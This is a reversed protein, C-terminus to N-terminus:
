RENSTKPLSWSLVRGTRASTNQSSLSQKVNSVLVFTDPVNGTIDKFYCRARNEVGNENFLCFLAGYNAGQNSTYISAWWPNKALEEDQDRISKGGLGSVFVFTKGKELRLTTATSAISQTAFNDMLHTRSYTHSHATAIIAGGRRCAEYPGWGVTDEKDGVQMLRQNEHWSCIRWIAHNDSLQKKIYQDHKSGMIGVGSLVFFLGQYRCASKIGLDGECTADPIRALRAQLKQQYGPWADDDHNGISAFYPFNSGLIDSIMQDWREPDDEYDFDGQHLVMDASENKIMRLVARAGESEGQDGLFAVMFNPPTSAQLRTEGPEQQSPMSTEGAVCGYNVYLGVAVPLLIILPIKAIRM